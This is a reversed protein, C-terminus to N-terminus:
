RVYARLAYESVMRETTFHSGNLSICSRMIDAWAEGGRSWAPLVSHELKEYLSEAHAADM